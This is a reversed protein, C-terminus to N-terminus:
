ESNLSWIDTSIQDIMKLLMTKKIDSRTAKYRRLYIQEQRRLQKYKKSESQNMIHHITQM